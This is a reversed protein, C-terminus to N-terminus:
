RLKSFYYIRLLFWSSLPSLKAFHKAYLYVRHIPQQWSWDVAQNRYPSRLTLKGKDQIM